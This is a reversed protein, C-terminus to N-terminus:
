IIKPEDTNNNNHELKLSKRKLEQSQSWFNALRQDANSCFERFDRLMKLQFLEGDASNNITLAKWKKNPIM